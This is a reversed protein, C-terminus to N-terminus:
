RIPRHCSAGTVLKKLRLSTIKSQEQAATKLEQNRDRPLREELLELMQAASKGTAFIIFIFGFKALYDQNATALRRLVEESASQVGAQENGAIQKTNAFKARLTQVNGIQPHGEFAELWDSEDLGNWIQIAKKHVDDDGFFPRAEEMEECWRNSACCTQLAELFDSHSLPNLWDALSAEIMLDEDDPPDFEFVVKGGVFTKIVQGSLTRGEYPTISHRHELQEGAVTFTAAPDWIVLDADYGATITGKKNQLGFTEAPHQSLLQSLKTLPWNEEGAITAMIPLTLQLSAIGGWSKAFDGALMKKMEPPCPSHDSGITDILSSAVASRLASQNAADRIPPACKFQTQGDAIDQDCFYLYHPCTEVTLPLGEQKAAAIMPLAEATALHVIHIPSQFERCLEILLKIAAVEFSAPRSNMYAAYSQQPWNSFTEPLTAVGDSVIEAHALLPIRAEKLMPLAARLEKEGAAPFEELGSDCLFAKIGKVGAEILGPIEIENGPVLGGYFEVNVVCKESAANRKTKLAAVNTTVPSSNLPMDILTTVGGAAAATTATSFGEWQTRGPENIHVHADIVGPSIVLDGFDECQIDGPLEDHSVIAEIQDGDVIVAASIEGAPTIVRTSKLAFRTPMPDTM